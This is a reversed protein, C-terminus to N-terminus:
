RMLDEPRYGMGLFVKECWRVPEHEIGQSRPDDGFHIALTIAEKAQDRTLDTSSRGLMIMGPRGDGFDWGPLARFGMVVGSFLHRWDAKSMAHGHWRLQAALDGCVANLMRQQAPTWASNGGAEWERKPKAPTAPNLPRDKPDRM